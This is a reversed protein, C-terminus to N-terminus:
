PTVLDKLPLRTELDLDFRGFPTVHGTLLPSLGARDRPTMTDLLTPDELVEQIMITNIYSLLLILEQIVTKLRKRRSSELRHRYDTKFKFLDNLLM